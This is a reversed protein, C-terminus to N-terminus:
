YYKLFCLPGILASLSGQYSVFHINNLKCVASIKKYYHNMSFSAAEVFAARAPKIVGESGKVALPLIADLFSM